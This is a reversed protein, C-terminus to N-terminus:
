IEGNELSSYHDKHSFIIHDLLQIGLFKGATKMYRTVEKDEESPTVDGSPHNHALIVATARDTIPDAFVERPHVYVRDVLGITVTRIAFIENAGNLSICVFHEQKNATIHRIFSLVDTTNSIKFGQPHIRRRAFEIAAAVIAAKAPGIGAVKQLDSVNPKSGNSDLIELIRASLSFVDCSQTGSGLLIAMLELDSLAVTGKALLKERPREDVPMELIRQNGQRIREKWLKQIQEAEDKRSQEGDKM